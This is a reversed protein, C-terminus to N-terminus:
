TIIFEILYLAHTFTYFNNLYLSVYTSRLAFHIYYEIANMM